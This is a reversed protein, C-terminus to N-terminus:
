LIGSCFIATKSHEDEIKIRFWLYWITIKRNKINKLLQNM